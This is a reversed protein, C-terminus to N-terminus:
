YPGTRGIIGHWVGRSMHRVNNWQGPVLLAFIAFKFPIRLLDQAVWTRTVHPMWYLLIRNRMIYYLRIPGHVQIQKKRFGPFRVFSDGIEHSMKAAASGVISFGRSKARFCWELDVNDIFLSENMPGIEQLSALSILCGSTIVFDCEIMEDPIIRENKPFGVKIFPYPRGNRTDVMAPGVAAIRKGALKASQEDVLLAAVMGDSPLSDQDMLLVHSFGQSFAFAIGKNLGAALGANNDTNDIIEIRDVQERLASLLLNLKAQDPRYTVVVACVRM